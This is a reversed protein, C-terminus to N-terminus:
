GRSSTKPDMETTPDVKPDMTIIDEKPDETISDEKHDVIIPDEISGETIPDEKPNETTLNKLLDETVTDKKPDQVITDEKHGQTKPDETRKKQYAKNPIPDVSKNLTDIVKYSLLLFNLLAAPKGKEIEKCFYRRKEYFVQM